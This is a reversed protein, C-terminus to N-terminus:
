PQQLPGFINNNQVIRTGSAPIFNALIMVGNLRLARRKTRDYRDLLSEPLPYKGRISIPIPM